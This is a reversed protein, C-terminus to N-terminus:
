PSYEEVWRTATPLHETAWALEGFPADRVVLRAGQAALAALARAIVQREHRQFVTNGASILAAGTPSADDTRVPVPGRCERGCPAGVEFRRQPGHAEASLCVRGTTVYGFPAHLTPAFGMADLDMALGQSAPDFEVRRVGHSALLRQFPPSSAGGQRPARAADPSGEADVRDAPLRPDRLMRTLIRGLVPTLQPYSRVLSFVGWDNVVVETRDDPGAARALASLLSDIRRLGADDVPPTVLTFCARERLAAFAELAAAATPLLTQCFDSGFYARSWADGPRALEGFSPASKSPDDM